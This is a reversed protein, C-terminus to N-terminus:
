ALAWAIRELADLRYLGYNYFNVEVAHHRAVAVKAALSGADAGDPAGPRLILALRPDAQGDRAGLAGASLAQDLANPDRLYGTVEVRAGSAALGVADIGLTLGGLPSPPGLEGTAYSATAISPDIVSLTIQRGSAIPVVEAVLGAVVASRLALFAIAAEGCAAALADNSFPQPAVSGSPVAEVYARARTALEDGDLGAADARGCCAACFCLGLVFRALEGYDELLREHHHGHGFGHFHVSELRIAVLGYRCLDTVLGVVLDRGADSSPCLTGAVEEGFCNRGLGPTGPAADDDHLVVAWASVGLGHRPALACLEALLDRGDLLEHPAPVIEGYRRPEPVFYCGPAVSAQRRRPNHPYLDSVAHYKAAMTIGDLGATSARELVVDIGEDLLDTGFCYLSSTARGPTSLQGM